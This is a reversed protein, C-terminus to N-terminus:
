STWRQVCRETEDDPLTECIYSVVHASLSHALGHLCSECIGLLETMDAISAPTAQDRAANVTGGGVWKTAAQLDSWTLRLLLLMRMTYVDPELAGNRVLQLLKKRQVAVYDMKERGMRKAGDVSVFTNVRPDFDDYLSEDTAFLPNRPIHLLNTDNKDQGAALFALKDHRWGRTEGDLATYGYVIAYKDYRGPELLYDSGFKPAQPDTVDFDDQYDMLSTNGDESGIFNHRLGLAHGVEHAVVNHLTLLVDPHDADLLPTRAGCARRHSVTLLDDSFRSPVSSFADFGLMIQAALIEGSRFDVVSPGYGLLGSRAPNTMHISSFRADGTSFDDPYDADGKALCIVAHPFGAAAFASNWSTVGKKLTPVYIEPTSPDLHFVIPKLKGDDDRLRWRNIAQEVITIQKPSGIQVETTFFGVRRDWPRPVM